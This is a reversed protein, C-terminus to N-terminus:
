HKERGLVGVKLMIKGDNKWTKQPLGGPDVKQRNKTLNQDFIDIKLGSPSGGPEWSRGGPSWKQPLLHEFDGVGFYGFRGPLTFFDTGEMKVSKPCM